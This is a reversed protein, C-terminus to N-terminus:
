RGVTIAKLTREIVPRCIESVDMEKQFREAAAEGEASWAGQELLERCKWALAEPEVSHMYNQYPNDMPINESVICMERNLMETVRLCSAFRPDVKNPSDHRAHLTLNLGIKARDMMSDLMSQTLFGEDFGRGFRTVAVGQARMADLMELRHPTNTGFFVVDLNKPSKRYIKSEHCVYGVPFYDSVRCRNKYELYTRHLWFWVFDVKDMLAEFGAIRNRLMAQQDGNFPMGYKAYPIAGGVILETAVIGIRLSASKKLTLLSDIFQRDPFYEFFLNIAEPYVNGSVVTVEHGCKSLSSRMYAILPSLYEGSATAGHNVMVLNFWM